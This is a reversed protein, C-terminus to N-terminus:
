PSPPRPLPPTTITLEILIQTTAALAPDAGSRLDALTPEAAVDPMIGNGEIVAGRSSRSGLNSFALEGGDALKTTGLVINACGCTLGGVLRARENERMASALGEAASGTQESVLIVVPKSYILSKADGAEFLLPVKYPGGFLSVPKGDRTIIRGYNITRDFSWGIMKVAIRPDGGGNQRLDIILGTTSSQFGVMAAQVEKAPKSKFNDFKLYGFGSPL